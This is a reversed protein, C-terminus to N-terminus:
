KPGERAGAGSHQFVPAAVSYDHGDIQAVAQFALLRELFCGCEQSASQIRKAEEHGHASRVATQHLDILGSQLQQGAQLLAALGGIATPVAQQSSLFLQPAGNGPGRGALGAAVVQFHFARATGAYREVELHHGHAVRGALDGVQHGRAAVDGLAFSGFFVHVFGALTEAHQEIRCGLADEPYVGRAAAGEGIQGAHM